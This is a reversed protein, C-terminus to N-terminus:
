YQNEKATKKGGISTSNLTQRIQRPNKQNYLFSQKQPLPLKLKM